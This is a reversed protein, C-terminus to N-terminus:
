AGGGFTGGTRIFDNPTTTSSSSWTQSASYVTIRYAVQGSGPSFFQEGSHTGTVARFVNNAPLSFYITNGEADSQDGWDTDYVTEQSSFILDYNSAFSGESKAKIVVRTIGSVNSFRFGQIGDILGFQLNGAYPNTPLGQIGQSGQIGQTGQIGQSGQIGQTGQIGQSGQIGQTGQIGQSGQVGQVSQISQICENTTRTTYGPGSVGLTGLTITGNNNYYYQDSRLATTFTMTTNNAIAPTKVAEITRAVGRDMTIFYDTGPEREKFPMEIIGQSIIVENHTLCDYLTGNARYLFISGDMKILNGIISRDPRATSEGPIPENPYLYKIYYSGKYPIYTISTDSVTHTRSRTPPFTSQIALDVYKIGPISITASTGTNTIQTSSDYITVTVNVSNTGATTRTPMNFIIVNNTLSLPTITVNNVKLTTTVLENAGPTPSFKNGTITVVTVQAIDVESPSFSSITPAINPLTPPATVSGLSGDSAAGVIDFGTIQQFEQFVKDTLSTTADVGTFTDNVTTLLTGLNINTPQGLSDVLTTTLSIQSAAPKPSFATPSTPDSFPGPGTNNFARYKVIYNANDLSSFDFTVTAGTVYTAGSVPREIRMLKYNRNADVPIGTDTSYWFELGTVLGSPITGTVIIKPRIGEEVSVITAVIPKTINVLPKIGINAEPVFESVPEDTYVDENYELGNIEALLAGDATEIEKIRTVRFKKNVWGYLNITMNFVDGPQAQLGQHNTTFRVALDDRTQKLQIRGVRLAQVNNNILDLTMTLKNDPENPHRMIGTGGQTYAPVSDRAYLRQDFNNRDCYEVELENYLDELPTSTLEIGGVINDDNFTLSAAQSWQPYVRWKGLSIDYSMWAASNQLIQDINNKVPNGTDIIGNIEYRRFGNLWEGCHAIWDNVATTDIEDIDINAGYRNSCMYDQWVEGPNSCTNKLKFTVNPLGTMQKEQNYEMRIIAFVLGEMNVRGGYAVDNWYKKNTPDSPWYDYANVADTAPFIQQASSTNGAYVRIQVLNNSGDKFNLDEYDDTADVTKVGKLVKHQSGSASEFVLKVDNWYINEVSFDGTNTMESLVLCYYMVNNTKNNTSIMRADTIIGNVYASGYVIPIKNNTQPPLQVRGGQTANKSKSSSKNILKSVLFSAAINFVTKAIFSSGIWTAATSVATAIFTFVAAM